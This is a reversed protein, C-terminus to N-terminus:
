GNSSSKLSASGSSAGVAPTSLALQLVGPRKGLMTEVFTEMIGKDSVPKGNHIVLKGNMRFASDQM